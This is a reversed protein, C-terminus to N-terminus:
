VCSLNNVCWSRLSWLLPVLSISGCPVSRASYFLAPHALRPRAACPPVSIARCLPPVPIARRLASCPYRPAPHRTSELM